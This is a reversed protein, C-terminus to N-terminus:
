SGNTGEGKLEVKLVHFVHLLLRLHQAEEIVALDRTLKLEDLLWILGCVAFWPECGVRGFAKKSLTLLAYLLVKVRSDCIEKQYLLITWQTIYVNLQMRALYTIM